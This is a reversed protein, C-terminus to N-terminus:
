LEPSCYDVLNCPTVDWPLADRYTNEAESNRIGEKRRETKKREM